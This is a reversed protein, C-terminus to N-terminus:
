SSAGQEADQLQATQEPVAEIAHPPCQVVCVMCGKCHDYDIEPTREIVKIAGDPCFTSCVWWCQNCREYDIVPRLTRWLGTRVETSNASAHIDPASIRADEFPLDIWAPKRYDGAGTQTKTTVSGAYQQMRDYADLAMALNKEVIADAMEALEDRIARALNDRSVAGLLRAAAGTCTAGMFRLEAREEAQAPLTFVKCCLNLRQKWTEISEDSNILLVTHDDVGALVGAAPVPILSDDAVVVLDPQAIVGREYIPQDDARVYAFIPAGRREAGYRPADQVEYGELFFASGLIRSATIMGQGGRGHFRIRYM